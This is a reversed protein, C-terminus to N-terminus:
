MFRKVSGYVDRGYNHLISSLTNIRCEHQIYRNFYDFAEFSERAFFEEYIILPDKIMENEWFLNFLKFFKRMKKDSSARKPEMANLPNKAISKELPVFGYYDAIRSKDWHRLTAVGYNLKVRKKDMVSSVTSTDETLLLSLVFLQFLGKHSALEENMFIVTRSNISVKIYKEFQIFILNYPVRGWLRYSFCSISPMKVRM